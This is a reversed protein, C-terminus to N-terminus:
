YQDASLLGATNRESQCSIPIPVAARWSQDLLHIHRGRGWNRERAGGAGPSRGVRPGAWRDFTRGERHQAEGLHNARQIGRSSVRSCRLAPCLTHTHPLVSGVTRTHTMCLMATDVACLASRCTTPPDALPKEEGTSLYCCHPPSPARVSERM